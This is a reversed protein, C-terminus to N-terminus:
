GGGNIEKSVPRGVCLLLSDLWIEKTCLFIKHRSCESLFENDVLNETQCM